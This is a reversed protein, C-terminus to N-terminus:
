HDRMESAATGAHNFCAHVMISWKPIKKETEYMARPPDTTRCAPTTGRGRCAEICVLVPGGLKRLFCHERASDLIIEM